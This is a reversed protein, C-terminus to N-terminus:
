ALLALIIGTTTGPRYQPRLDPVILYIGGAAAATSALKMCVHAHAAPLRAAQM